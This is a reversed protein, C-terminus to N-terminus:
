SDGGMRKRLRDLASGETGSGSGQDPRATANKTRRLMRDRELESFQDLLPDRLLDDEGLAVDAELQGQMADIRNEIESFREFPDSSGSTTMAPAPTPEIIPAEHAGSRYRGYYSSGSAKPAPRRLGSPESSTNPTGSSRERSVGMRVELADLAAQLDALESRQEELQARLQEVRADADHKQRLIAKASAENDRKLAEVAREELRWAEDLAAQYGANLRQERQRIQAASARAEVLTRRVDARPTKGRLSSFESRVLLNLRDLISM